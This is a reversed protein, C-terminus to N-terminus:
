QLREKVKNYEEESSLLYQQGDYDTIEQFRIIEFYQTAEARHIFVKKGILQVEELTRENILKYFSKNDFRRRYQPFDM